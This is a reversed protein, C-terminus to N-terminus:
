VRPLFIDCIRDNVLCRGVEQGEWLVRFTSIGNQSSWFVREDSLIPTITSNYGPCQGPRLYIPAQTTEIRNCRGSELIEYFSAWSVGSFEFGASEGSENLAEFSVAAVDLSQDDLNLIYFSYDDYFLEILRGDPHLVTATPAPPLTTTPQVPVPTQTPIVTPPLNTETAVVTVVEIVPLPMTTPEDPTPTEDEPETPIEAGVNEGAASTLSLNAEATEDDRSFVNVLALTIFIVLIILSAAAAVFTVWSYKVPLPL